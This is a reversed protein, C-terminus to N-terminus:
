GMQTTSRRPRMGGSNTAVGLDARRASEIAGACLYDSERDMARRM